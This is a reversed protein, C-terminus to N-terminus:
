LNYDVASWIGEKEPAPIMFKVCGFANLPHSQEPPKHIGGQAREERGM